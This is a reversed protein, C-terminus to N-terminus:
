LGPVTGERLMKDRAKSAVGQAGQALNIGAEGTHVKIGKRSYKSGLEVLSSEVGFQQRLRKEEMKKDIIKAQKEPIRMLLVDGIRRTGDAEKQEIAEPMKGTVVKYGLAKMRWVAQGNLGYYVWKYVYGKQKNSVELLNIKDLIERDEKFASADIAHVGSEENLKEAAEELREKQESSLKVEKQKDVDSAKIIKINDM